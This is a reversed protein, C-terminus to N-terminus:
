RGRGKKLSAEAAELVKVVELGNRADTLPRKQNRICDIFHECLNKLPESQEVEPVRIKGIRMIAQHDVYEPTSDLLGKDIIREYVKIMESKSVDDFVAMGRSGVVTVKRIKEPAIWTAHVNCFVRKPFKLSLFVIDEVGKQIYSEGEATVKDPSQGLLHIAICIDHTALDWLASAHKRIPGLGVRETSLYYLEGLEGKDLIEKLKRIGPNFSYVHGAMLVLKKREAIAMLEEAERSTSTFPKEILVHKGKELFFKAIEFHTNLPTTVVVAELDRDQAMGRYDKTTITSPYLNKIKALNKDELDCCSSM